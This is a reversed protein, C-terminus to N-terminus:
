PLLVDSTQDSYDIVPEGGVLIIDAFVETGSYNAIEGMKAQNDYQGPKITIGLNDQNIAILDVMTESDFIAMGTIFKDGSFEYKFESVVHQYGDRDVTVTLEVDDYNTNKLQGSLEIVIPAYNADSELEDFNYNDFEPDVKLSGTLSVGGTETIDQYTGDFTILDPVPTAVEEPNIFNIETTGALSVVQTELTSDATLKVLRESTGNMLESYAPFETEAFELLLSGTLDLEESTFDGQFSITNETELDLNLEGNLSVLGIDELSAFQEGAQHLNDELTGDVVVEMVRPVTLNYTGEEDTETITEAASSNLTFDFSWDATGDGEEDFAYHYEAATLDINIEGKSSGETIIESMNTIEIVLRSNTTEESLEWTWLDAELNQQETYNIIEPSGELDSNIVYTGPGDQDTTDEDPLLTEWFELTNAIMELRAAVSELYPAVQNNLNAEIQDAQGTATTKLNLGHTKLEAVLNKADQVTTSDFDLILNVNAIKGGVVVVKKEESILPNMNTFQLTYEGPELDSFKYEGGSGTQIVQDTSLLEVKVGSITKGNAKVVGQISGESDTKSAFPGFCGALLIVLGLIIGIFKIRKLIAIKIM